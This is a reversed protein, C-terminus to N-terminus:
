SIQVSKTTGSIGFNLSNYTLYDNEDLSGVNTDVIRTGREEDYDWAVRSPFLEYSVPSLTRPPSVYDSLDSRQHKFGEVNMVADGSKGVLTMGVINCSPDAYSVAGNKGSKVHGLNLGKVNLFLLHSGVLDQAFIM